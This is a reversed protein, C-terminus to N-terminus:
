STCMTTRSAGALMAEFKENGADLLSANSWKFLLRFKVEQPNFFPPLLFM